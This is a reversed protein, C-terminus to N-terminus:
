HAARIRERLYRFIAEKKVAVELLRRIREQFTYYISPGMLVLIKAITEAIPQGAFYKIGRRKFELLKDFTPMAEFVFNVELMARRMAAFSDVAEDLSHLVNEHPDLAMVGFIDAHSEINFPIWTQCLAEFSPLKVSAVTDQKFSSLLQGASSTANGVFTQWQEVMKTQADHLHLHGLEHLVTFLPIGHLIFWEDVGLKKTGPTSLDDLKFMNPYPCRCLEVEFAQKQPSVLRVIMENLSALRSSTCECSLGDMATRINPNEFATVYGPTNQYERLKQVLTANHVLASCLTPAHSAGDRCEDFCDVDGKHQNYVCHPPMDTASSIESAAM